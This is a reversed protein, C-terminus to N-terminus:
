GRVSNGGAAKSKELADAALAIIESLTERGTVGEAFGISVTVSTQGGNPLAVVLAAIAARIREAAAAASVKTFAPPLVAAFEEGAFRGLIDTDRLTKRLEDAIGVLVKDGVAHGYDHNIGKLRDVDMLLLVPSTQNRRALKLEREALYLFHRRNYLGTLMDQNALLRVEQFLTSNQIAVAAQGAITRGVSVDQESFYDRRDSDVLFLGKFEEHYFMPLVLVSGPKNQGASDWIEPDLQTRDLVLSRDSKDKDDWLQAILAPLPVGEQLDTVAPGVTKIRRVAQEARLFGAQGTEPFVKALIGLVIEVLEPEQLTATLQYNAYRLIEAIQKQRAQRSMEGDDVLAKKVMHRLTIMTRTRALLEKRDFPKVLYDNAGVDFGMLIDSPQNKATVMIVPLEYLNFNDRIKRCVEFGTMRPMMIDLVVLDFPGQTKIAALAELGSSATSVQYHHQGLHNLLVQINVPEDDVVLIRYDKGSDDIVLPEEEIEFSPVATLGRSIGTHGTDSNEAAAQSQPLAVTFVSGKGLESTVKISGGHLDVLKKTISLGLGTGGFQRDSAASVQEFSNFIIDLKDAPIGIGTDRISVLVVEPGPEASLTIEGHDTFKVANGLLNMFIQELRSEDGLVAPLNPAFHTTLKLQKGEVLPRTIELCSHLIPALSLSRRNLNLEKEKLKSFDLIDNVLSALRRSSNLIIRLNKQQTGNIQGAGGELLFDTIGMIGNLPTRLEHSTNALFEDKLRDLSLLNVTKRELDDMMTNLSRSLVGLETQSGSVYRASLDGGEVRKMMEKMAQIPVTISQSIRLAALIALVLAGLGVLLIFLGLENVGKVVESYPTATVLHWGLNELKLATFWAARGQDDQGLFSLSAEPTDIIRRVPAQGSWDAMMFKRNPHAVVRGTEDVLFMSAQSEQGNLYRELAKELTSVSVNIVVFGLYPSSNPSIKQRPIWRASSFVLRRNQDFEAKRTPVWVYTNRDALNQIKPYWPLLGPRFEGNELSFDGSGFSLGNERLIWISDFEKNARLLIRLLDNQITRQAQLVQLESFDKWEASLIEQVAPNGYIIDTYEAQKKMLGSIYLETQRLIRENALQNQKALLNGAVQYALWGTLLLALALLGLILLFIRFGLNQRFLRFM